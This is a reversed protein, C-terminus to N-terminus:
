DVKDGTVKWLQYAPNETFVQQFYPEGGEKCIFLRNFMTEAINEHMVAGVKSLDNYFFVYGMPRNYFQKETGCKQYFLLMGKNVGSEILGKQINVRTKGDQSTLVGSSAEIVGTFPEYMTEGGMGTIPNWTSFYFIWSLVHATREDIFLYIPPAAKPFFFDIWDDISKMSSIPQLKQENLITRAEYPGASLIRKIFSFAESLRKAENEKIPLASTIINLSNEGRVVFFRMFNAAFRADNAMYPLANAITRYGGHFQGDSITARDAWYIINHGHDWWAWIVANSPTADKIKAMGEVIYPRQSPWIVYKTAAYVPRICLLIPLCIALYRLIPRKKSLELLTFCCMGIGLAVVPGAFILFRVAFLSLFGLGVPIALILLSSIDKKRISWLLYGSLAIFPALLEGTFSTLTTLLDNSQQESISIGINPLLETKKSIYGYKQMIEAFLGWHVTLYATIGLFIALGAIAAYFLTQQSRLRWILTPLTILAPLLTFIAAMKRAQDWWWIFLLSLILYCVMALYRRTGDRKLAYIAFFCLSWLFVPNLADTDFWGISSRTVFPAALVSVLAAALGTTRDALLNGIGYMPLALFIALFAPLIAGVWHLNFGLRQLIAAIVSLLPPPSPPSPNAPVSRMQSFRDYQGQALDHAVALYYPADFTTSLPIGQFFARDPERNWAILNNLRVFLGMFMIIAIFFFTAIKKTQM